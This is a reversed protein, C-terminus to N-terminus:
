RSSRTAFLHQKSPARVMKGPRMDCIRSNGMETINAVLSSTLLVNRSTLNKISSRKHLYLLGSAMDKLVCHKLSLPLNPMHELVNDLSTELREMVLLPLCTKLFQKINPHHLSSMLQCEQQYKCIM